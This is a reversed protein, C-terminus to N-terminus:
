VPLLIFFPDFVLLTVRNWFTFSGDACLRTVCNKKKKRRGGQQNGKILITECQCFDEVCLARTITATYQILIDKTKEGEKEARLMLWLRGLSRYSNFAYFAKAIVNLKDSIWAKRKKTIFQQLLNRYYLRLAEKQNYFYKKSKM